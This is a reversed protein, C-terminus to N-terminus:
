SLDEEPEVVEETAGETETSVPPLPQQERQLMEWEMPTLARIEKVLGQGVFQKGLNFNTDNASEGIFANGFVNCEDLLRAVFRRFDERSMLAKLDEEWLILDDRDEKRARKVQRKDAANTVRAGGAM